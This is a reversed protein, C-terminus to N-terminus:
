LLLFPFFLYFFYGLGYMYVRSIGPFTENETNQVGQMDRKQYKFSRSLTQKLGHIAGSFEEIQKDFDQMLGTNILFM